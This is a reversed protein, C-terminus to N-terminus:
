IHFAGEEASETERFLSAHHTRFDPYGQRRGYFLNPLRSEDTVEALGCPHRREVRHIVVLICTKM